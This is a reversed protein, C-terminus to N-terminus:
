IGRTLHLLELEDKSQFYGIEPEGWHYSGEKWLPNKADLRADLKKSLVKTVDGSYPRKKKANEDSHWTIYFMGVVQQM